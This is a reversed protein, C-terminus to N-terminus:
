FPVDSGKAGPHTQRHLKSLKELGEFPLEKELRAYNADFYAPDTEIAERAEVYLDRQREVDEQKKETEAPKEAKKAQKPPPADKEAEKMPNVTYPAKRGRTVQLMTKQAKDIHSAHSIRIGGVLENGYKVAPDRYLTLKRGEYTNGDSGWIHVLLRRMTLCPRWPVTREALHIDIPQKGDASKSEEVKTITVTIPGSILDDANLQASNAHITESLDM